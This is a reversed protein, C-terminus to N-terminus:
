FLKSRCDQLSDVIKSVISHQFEENTSFDNGTHVFGRRSFKKIQFSM